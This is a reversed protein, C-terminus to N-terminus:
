IRYIRSADACANGPLFASSFRLLTSGVAMSQLIICKWAAKGEPPSSCCTAIIHAEVEGTVKAPVPPTTRSKRTLVAAVGGAEYRKCVESITAESVGHRNSIKKTTYLRAGSAEDLDLLIKGRKQAQQGSTKKSIARKVSQREAETLKIHYKQM